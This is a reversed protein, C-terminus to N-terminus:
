WRWWSNAKMIKEVLERVAGKGGQNETVMNVVNKLEPCADKVAVSFGVRKAVEIDILDDGIFCVEEPRVKYKKFIGPLHDQKPCGCYVQKVGMEKARKKVVKANKATLIIINFGEKALLSVGLGDKVNFEKINKGRSDYIIKGETLVGDVDLILLKIKKLKEKIKEDM